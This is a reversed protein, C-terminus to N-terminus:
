LDQPFAFFDITKSLSHSNKAEAILGQGPQLSASSGGHHHSGQGPTGSPGEEATPLHCLVFAEGLSASHM